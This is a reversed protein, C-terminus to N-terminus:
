ANAQLFANIKNKMDTIVAPTIFEVDTQILDLERLAETPANANLYFVVRDFKDAVQKTKGKGTIGKKANDAAFDDALDQWLVRLGKFMTKLKEKALEETPDVETFTMANYDGWAGGQLHEKYSAVEAADKCFKTLLGMETQVLLKIM